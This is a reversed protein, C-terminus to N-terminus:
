QLRAVPRVMRRARECRMEAIELVKEFEQRILMQKQTFLLGRENAYRLILCLSAFADITVALEHHEFEPFEM